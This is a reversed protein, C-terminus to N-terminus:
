RRRPMRFPLMLRVMPNAFRNLSLSEHVGIVNEGFLRTSIRSRAYFPTDEFSRSIEATGDDSRTQRALRWRTTPLQVIPPPKLKEYNGSKDFRLALSVSGEQRRRADYLIASGRSLAARSWTWDVFGTELPESGANMDFYGDGSWRLDPADFEASVRASPAIPRWLHRGAADLSFSETNLGTPEVRITGRIRSPLPVAVEDVKITLGTGDWSLASRGIALEHRSRLVASRGRETMAWRNGRPSYLAVNVACHDLPDRRGSWAYYPSFVSGILAIIALGHRGDDSLADVYWWAYGGPEVPQDFV